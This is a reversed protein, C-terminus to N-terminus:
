IFISKIISNPLDIFAPSGFAAWPLYHISILLYEAAAVAGSFVCLWFDLLLSSLIIMIFYMIVPPSNLLQVPVFINNNMAFFGFVMLLVLSPFSVEAFVILYSFP